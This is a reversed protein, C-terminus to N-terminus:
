RGIMAPDPGTYIQGRRDVRRPANSKPARKTKRRAQGKRPDPIFSLLVFLLPFIQTRQRALLGFNAVYSFIFCLMLTCAMAYMAYPQNLLTRPLQKLRRWSSIILMLLVLGELSTAFSEVNHAENPLPRLLVTGISGPFKVPNDAKIPTFESGGQSTQSTTSELASEVGASNLSDVGLFSATKGMLVGGVVVLVLAALLKGITVSSSDGRGRAFVFAVGMAIVLTLGIHPRIMFTLWVGFVVMPIGVLERKFLRVAGYSAIGASFTMIAEKGISSPWYLMSPWLFVLLAYRRHDGNPFATVFAKYFFIVGIFGFTTFLLYEAFMNPGTVSGLLGAIYRVSGTGPVEGRVDVSFNFARFSPAILQGYRFYYLADAANALRFYSGLYRLLLGIVMVPLANYTPHQRSLRALWPTLAVTFLPVLLLGIATGKGQVEGLLYTGVLAIVTLLGLM